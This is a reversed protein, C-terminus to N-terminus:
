FSMEPVQEQSRAKSPRGPKYQPNKKIQENIYDIHRTWKADVSNKGYLHENIEANTNSEVVTNGSTSKFRKGNIIVFNSM